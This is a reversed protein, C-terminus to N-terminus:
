RLRAIDMSSGARSKMSLKTELNSLCRHDEVISEQCIMSEDITLHSRIDVGRIEITRLRRFYLVSAM